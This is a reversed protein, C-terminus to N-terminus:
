RLTTLNEWCNSLKHMWPSVGMSPLEKGLNKILVVLGAGVGITGFLGLKDTVFDIAEALKTLLEVVTAIDDRAFLNQWIGTGTEKLANIKYELSQYINEMEKEASGASDAVTEMVNRASAFNSIINAGIDARTKGFLVQLLDARNRDTLEDWIDSIDSLIEYTSRYTEKTEDTFLSVGTYNNSAVKTLDAVDGTLEKIDSSFTETEEDYMRNSELHFWVKVSWIIIHRHTM